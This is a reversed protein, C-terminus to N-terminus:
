IDPDHLLSYVDYAMRVQRLEGSIRMFPIENTDLALADLMSWYFIDLGAAIAVTSAGGFRANCEIVNLGGDPGVVAQLVVPGSLQLAALINLAQTEIAYSRFTTTVQSEGNAVLDRKRLVLGKAIHRRDLWADISIESGTIYPQFIPNKLARAHDKAQDLNLGLGIERSGAGYREKVVFHGTDLLAPSQASPIFPLGQGRGFNSFMLKDICVRIAAEPSVVVAIGEARFRAAHIAWFLLEGDRTPIIIHVNLRKCGALLADAEEDSTHPMHWFADAIYQTLATKDADGAIVRSKPNVRFAACQVARVLPAKAAASTVLVNLPSVSM